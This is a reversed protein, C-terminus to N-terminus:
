VLSDIRVGLADALARMVKVTAGRAGREIKSVATQDIGARGALQAQTLGRYERWVRVKNEGDAIRYAFDAAITASPNAADEDFIHLDEADEAAARLREYEGIELVAFARRGKKDIYQVRTM